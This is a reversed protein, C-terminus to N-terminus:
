GKKGKQPGMPMLTAYDKRDMEAYRWYRFHKKQGKTPDRMDVPEYSYESKSTVATNTKKNYGWNMLFYVADEYGCKFCGKDDITFEKAMEYKRAYTGDKKALSMERPTVLDGDRKVRNIPLYRVVKDGPTKSEGWEDRLHKIRWIFPYQGSALIEMLHVVANEKAHVLINSLFPPDDPDCKQLIERIKEDRKDENRENEIQDLPFIM